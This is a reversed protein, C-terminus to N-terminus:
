EWGCSVVAAQRAREWYIIILYPRQRQERGFNMIGGNIIERIGQLFNLTESLQYYISHLQNYGYYWTTVFESLGRTKKRGSMNARWHTLLVDTEEECHQLAGRQRDHPGICDYCEAVEGDTEGVDQLGPCLVEIGPSVCECVCMWDWWGLIWIFKDTLTARTSEVGSGWVHILEGKSACKWLVRLKTQVSSSVGPLEASHTLQLHVNEQEPVRAEDEAPDLRMDIHEEWGSCHRNATMASWQAAHHPFNVREVLLVKKCPFKWVIQTPLGRIAVEFKAEATAMPVLWCTTPAKHNESLGGERTFQSPM